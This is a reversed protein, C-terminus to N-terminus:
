GARVVVPASLRERASLRTGHRGTVERRRRLDPSTAVCTDSSSPSLYAAVPPRRGAAGSRGPDSFAMASSSSSMVLVSPGASPPATRCARCGRRRRPRRRRCRRRVARGVAAGVAAGVATGVTARVATGVAARVATGVATGVAAGVAARSPPASPPASPEAQGLVRGGLAPRLLSSRGARRRHVFRSGCTKASCYQARRGSSVRAASVPLEKVSRSSRRRRRRAATGGRAACATGASRWPRRRRRGALPEGVEPPAPASIASWTDESATSRSNASPLM